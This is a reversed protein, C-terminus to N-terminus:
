QLPLGVALSDQFARLAMPYKEMKRYVGGLRALIRKRSHFNGEELAVRAAHDYSAAAEVLDGAGEYELGQGELAICVFTM